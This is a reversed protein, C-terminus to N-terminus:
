AFSAFICVAAFVFPSSLLLTGISGSALILKSTSNGCTGVNNVTNADLSVAANIAFLAGNVTTSAGVSAATAAIINGNFTNTGGLTASTGITWYVGCARASNTLVVAAGGSTILTTGTQFIFTANADGQGDLTVSGTITVGQDYCRKGPTLTTGGLEISITFNFDCPLAFLTAYADSALSHATAAIANGSNRTGTIIGPPFGTISSGPSVDLNGNVTTAGNNTVTTGAVVLSAFADDFTSATCLSVFGLCFVLKLFVGM